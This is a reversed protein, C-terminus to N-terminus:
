ASSTSADSRSLQRLRELDNNILAMKKKRTWRKIQKERQIATMIYRFDEYYILKIPRRTYTYSNINEGQKHSILRRWLNCTVGVYFSQDACELIYVSYIM